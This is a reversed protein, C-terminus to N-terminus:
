EIIIGFTPIVEYSFYSLNPMNRKIPYVYLVTRSNNDGTRSSIFVYSTLYGNLKQVPQGKFCEHWVNM